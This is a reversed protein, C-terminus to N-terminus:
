ERDDELEEVKCRLCTFVSGSDDPQFEGDVDEYRDTSVERTYWGRTESEVTHGAELHGVVGNGEPVGAWELLLVDGRDISDALGQLEVIETMSIRENVIETRLYELREKTTDSM